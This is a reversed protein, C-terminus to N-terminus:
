VGTKKIGCHNLFDMFNEPVSIKIEDPLNLPNDSPFTLKYACLFFDQKENIKTGGYVTDGILPFNHLASQSRIQHKRGTKIQIDAFTVSKGKYTGYDVPNVITIAKKSDSKEEKSSHATVKYFGNESENENSIYDEWVQKNEIKGELVAYYNKVIAHNQINQTFWLAGKHSLSFALLGTTKKDLRHLPGPVFSLSNDNKKLHNLYYNKVTQELSNKDQHVNIDYPKNIILIHDNQFVIELLECEIKEPVASDKEEQLLFEAISIVDNKQIRYDPSTKKQNIKILGKRILKYLDSLKVESLFTRIVKDLRRGEDNIGTNFDKFDM